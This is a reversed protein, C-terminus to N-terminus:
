RDKFHKVAIALKARIKIKWGRSLIYVYYLMFVIFLIYFLGYYLM